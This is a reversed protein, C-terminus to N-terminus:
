IQSGEAPLLMVSHIKSVTDKYRANGSLKVWDPHTRFANWNREKEAEDVYALLYTLNPLAPGAIAEGYFVGDLNVKEFIDLEGGSNFMEVKLRAKRENHSEYVRLEFIRDGIRPVKVKPYDEFARMLTVDVRQYAPNNMARELYDKAAEQHKKDRAVKDGAEQARKASSYATLVYVSHDDDAQPKFVGVKHSGARNHAAIGADKWYDLIAAQNEATNVRFHHWVLTMQGSGFLGAQAQNPAALAGAAVAGAVTSKVFTRRNM